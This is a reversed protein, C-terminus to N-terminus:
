RILPSLSIAVNLPHIIYPEGSRRLQDKHAEKAIAYAKEIMSIDDSPHYKQVSSILEQYLEDPTVFEKLKNIKGDNFIGKEETM